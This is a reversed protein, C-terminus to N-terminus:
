HNRSLRDQFPLMKRLLPWWPWRCPILPNPAHIIWPDSSKYLSQKPLNLTQELIRIAISLGLLHCPWLHRPTAKAIGEAFHDYWHKFILSFCCKVECKVKGHIAFLECPVIKKRVFQMLTSHHKSCVRAEKGSIERDERTQSLRKEQVLKVWTPEVHQFQM